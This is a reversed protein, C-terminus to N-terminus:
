MCAKLACITYLCTVIFQNIMKFMLLYSVRFKPIDDPDLTSTPASMDDQDDLQLLLYTVTYVLISSMVTFAYSNFWPCLCTLPVHTQYNKQGM